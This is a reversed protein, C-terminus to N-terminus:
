SRVTPILTTDVEGMGPVVRMETRGDERETTLLLAGRRVELSESIVGVAMTVLTDLDLINTIAASYDRLARAPDYRGGMLLKDVLNITSLRLPTMLITLLVAMIAASALAM